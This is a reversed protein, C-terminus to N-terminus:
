VEDAKEVTLERGEICVIEFEVVPWDHHRRDQLTVQQGLRPRSPTHLYDVLTGDTARCTYQARKV